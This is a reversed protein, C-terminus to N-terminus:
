NFGRKMSVAMPSGATTENSWQIAQLTHVGTLVPGGGCHVTFKVPITSRLKFTRLPAEFSGGSADGGGLPPLFGVFTLRASDPCPCPNWGDARPLTRWVRTPDVDRQGYDSSGWTVLTGDDRLALSHTQGAAVAVVSTLWLLVNCQGQNNNGWAHM